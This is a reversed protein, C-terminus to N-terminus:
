EKNFDIRIQDNLRKSGYIFVTTFQYETDARVLSSALELGFSYCRLPDSWYKNNPGFRNLDFDDWVKIRRGLSNNSRDILEFLEFRVTGPAKIKSGAGDYVDIHPRISITNEKEGAAIETMGNFKISVASFDDATYPNVAPPANESHPQIECGGALFLMVSTLFVTKKM